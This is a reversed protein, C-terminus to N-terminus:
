SANEMCKTDVSCIGDGPYVFMEVPTGDAKMIFHICTELGLLFQGVLELQSVDM